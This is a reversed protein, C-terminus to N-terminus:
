DLDSYTNYIRTLGSDCRTACISSYLCCLINLVLDDICIMYTALTLHATEACVRMNVYKVYVAIAECLYTATDQYLYM